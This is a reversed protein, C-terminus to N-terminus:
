SAVFEKWLFRLVTNEAARQKLVAPDPASIGGLLLGSLLAMSGSTGCFPAQVGILPCCQFSMGLNWAFLICYACVCFGPFLAAFGFGHPREGFLTKVTGLLVAFSVTLLWGIGWFHTSNALAFDSSAAPVKATYYPNGLIGATKLNRIVASIQDIEASTSREQVKRLTDTRVGDCTLFIITLAAFGLIGLWLITSFKPSPYILWYAALCALGCLLPIGTEHRIFLAGALVLAAGLHAFRCIYKPANGRLFAIGESITQATRTKPPINERQKPRYPLEPRNLSLTVLALGLFFAIIAPQFGRVASTNSGKGGAACIYGGLGIGGLVAFVTETRPCNGSFRDAFRVAAWCGAIGLLYMSIHRGTLVQM